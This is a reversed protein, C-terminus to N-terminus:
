RSKRNWSTVARNHQKFHCKWISYYSRILVETQFVCLGEYLNVSWILWVMEEVQRLSYWSRVFKEKLLFLRLHISWNKGISIGFALAMREKMFVNWWSPVSMNKPEPFERGHNHFSIVLIKYGLWLPFRSKIHKRLIKCLLSQKVQTNRCSHALIVESQLLYNSFIDKCWIKYLYLSICLIRVHYM